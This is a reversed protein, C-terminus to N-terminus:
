NTDTATISLAGYLQAFPATKLRKNVRRFVCYPTQIVKQVPQGLKSLLARENTVIAFCRRDTSGDITTNGMPKVNAVTM